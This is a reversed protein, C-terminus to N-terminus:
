TQIGNQNAKAALFITEVLSLYLGSSPPSMTISDTHFKQLREERLRWVRRFWHHRRSIDVTKEPQNKLYSKQCDVIICTPEM